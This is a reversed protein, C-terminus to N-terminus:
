SVTGWTGTIVKILQESPGGASCLGIQSVICGNRDIITDKM